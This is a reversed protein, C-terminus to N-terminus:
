QSWAEEFEPQTTADLGQSEEPEVPQDTLFGWDDDLQAASYAHREGDATITLQRIAIHKGDDIVTEFYWLENPDEPSPGSWYYRPLASATLREFYAGRQDNM